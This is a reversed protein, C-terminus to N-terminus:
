RGHVETLSEQFIAQGCCLLREERWSVFYDGRLELVSVLLYSVSIYEHFDSIKFYVIPSFCFAPSAGAKQLFFYKSVKRRTDVLL